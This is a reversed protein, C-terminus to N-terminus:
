RPSSEAFAAQAVTLYVDYLKVGELRQLTFEGHSLATIVSGNESLHVFSSEQRCSGHTFPLSSIRLVNMIEASIIRIWSKHLDRVM